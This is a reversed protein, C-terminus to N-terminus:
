LATANQCILVDTMLGTPSELYGPVQTCAAVAGCAVHCTVRDDRVLVRSVREIASSRIAIKVVLKSEGSCLHMQM